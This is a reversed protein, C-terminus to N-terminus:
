PASAAIACDTLLRMPGAAQLREFADQDRAILAGAYGLANVPLGDWGAHRRAVLWLWDRTALLNYPAPQYAGTPEHGMARWLDAITAALRAGNAAPADLWAPDMRAVAHHCPLQPMQGIGDAFVADALLQAFPLAPADPALPLPVLQLHKHPQSAGAESGGNYFALGDIGALGRLLAECDAADLRATQEAWYRTVLLLHDALVNYKNLLVAHTASLHGVFLDHDYPPAFPDAPKATDDGGAQKFRLNPAVRVHFTLGADEIPRVRTDLPVLAGSARARESARRAATLLEGAELEQGPNMATRM